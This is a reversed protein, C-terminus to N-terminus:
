GDSVVTQQRGRQNRLALYFPSPSAWWSFPPPRALPCTVPLSVGGLPCLEWCSPSSTRRHLRAPLPSEASDWAGRQSCKRERPTAARLLVPPCQGAHTLTRLAPTRARHRPSHLITRSGHFCTHCTRLFNFMSHGPFIVLLPSEFLCQVGM